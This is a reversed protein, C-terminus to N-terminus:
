KGTRRRKDVKKISKIEKQRLEENIKLIEECVEDFEWDESFLYDNTQISSLMFEETEKMLSRLDEKMLYLDNPRDDNPRDHAEGIWDILTDIFEERDRITYDVLEENFVRDNIKVNDVFYNGEEDIRITHKM